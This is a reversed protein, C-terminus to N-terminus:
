FYMRCTPKPIILNSSCIELFYVINLCCINKLKNLFTDVELNSANQYPSSVLEELNSYKTSQFMEVGKPLKYLYEVFGDDFINRKTAM